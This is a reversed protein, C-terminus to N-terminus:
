TAAVLRCKIGEIEFPEHWAGFIVLVSANEVDGWRAATCVEDPSIKQLYAGAYNVFYCKIPANM